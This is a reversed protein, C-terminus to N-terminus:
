FKTGEAPDHLEEGEKEGMRRADNWPSPFREHVFLLFFYFDFLNQAAKRCAALAPPGHPAAAPGEGRNRGTSPPGTHPLRSSAVMQRCPSAAAAPEMGARGRQRARAETGAARYFAVTPFVFLRGWFM